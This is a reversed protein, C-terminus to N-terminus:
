NFVPATPVDSGGSFFMFYAAALLAIGCVVLMIIQAQQRDKALGWKIIMGVIDSGQSRTPPAGFEETGDNFKIDGESMHM